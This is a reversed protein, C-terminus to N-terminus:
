TQADRLPPFVKRLFRPGPTANEECRLHKPLCDQWAHLRDYLRRQTHFNHENTSDPSAENHDIVEHHLIVVDCMANMVGPTLPPFHSSSTFPQGFIDVNRLDQSTEKHEHFLRPVSPIKMTMPKKFFNAVM